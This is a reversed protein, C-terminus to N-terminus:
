VAKTVTLSTASVGLRHAAFLLEEVLDPDCDCVAVYRYKGSTGLVHAALPKLLEAVAEPDVHSPRDAVILHAGVLESLARSTSRQLLSWAYEGWATLRYGAEDKALVHADLLADLPGKLGGSTLDLAARARGHTFSGEMAALKVLAWHRESRTVHSLLAATWEVEDSIM